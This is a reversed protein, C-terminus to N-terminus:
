DIGIGYVTLICYRRHTRDRYVCEFAAVGLESPTGWAVRARLRLLGTRPGM